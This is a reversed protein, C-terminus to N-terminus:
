LSDKVLSYYLSNKDKVLEDHKGCQLLKGNDFVLIRDAYIFSSLRHASIVTTCNRHRIAQNVKEETKEDLASTAEDLLLITPATVLARAVEIRQNQGGSLNGGGKKLHSHIGNHLTNIVEGLASDHIASKLDDVNVHCNWMTVNDLMTGDFIMIDQDVIGVSAGFIDRNIKNIDVGGVKVEGSDPKILGGILKLITSKGSGSGGVLAVVEGPEVTLSFNSFLLPGRNTYRFDINNLEIKGNLKTYNSVSVKEQAALLHDEEQDLVDDVRLLNGKMSKFSRYINILNDFSSSFSHMFSQYAILMGLSMEANIISLGGFYFVIALLLYTQSHDFITIMASYLANNQVSNSLRTQYGAIKGFAEAEGGMSKLTNVASMNSTTAGFYKGNDVAVRQSLDAIRNTLKLNVAAVIVSFIIIIVTLEINYIFMISIFVVLSVASLMIHVVSFSVSKAIGPAVTLRQIVEGSDRQTFFRYPLRILRKMFRTTEITYMKLDFRILFYTQFYSLIVHFLATIGMIWLLPLVWNVKKKVLYDDVFVKLYIPTVLQLFVAIIGLSMFFAIERKSNELRKVAAQLISQKRGRKEFKQKPTFTLTVGTFSEDFENWTVKRRGMAPDNIFVNKRNFGELVVYHNFNWFIIAPLQIDVISELEERFGKAEFGFERATFVINSAKSGDRSVDCRHRLEDIPIYCKYYDLVMKLVAAGCEVAEIQITTPTKVRRSKLNKLFSFNEKEM